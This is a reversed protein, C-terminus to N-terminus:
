RGSRESTEVHRGPGGSPRNDHGGFRDRNPGGRGGDLLEVGAVGILLGIVLAVGATLVTARSPRRRPAPDSEVTPTEPPPPPGSTPAAPTSPASTPPAPPPTTAVPETPAADHAAVAEEPTPDPTPDSASVATPDATPGATPEDTM